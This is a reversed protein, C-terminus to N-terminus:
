LSRNSVVKEHELYPYKEMVKQVAHVGTIESIADWRSSILIHNKTAAGCSELQHTEKKARKLNKTM